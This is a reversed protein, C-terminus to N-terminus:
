LEPQIISIFIAYAVNLFPIVGFTGIMAITEADLAGFSGGIVNVIALTVIFLLPAAILVGTYIDSYTALVETYKQRDLKYTNLSDEAKGKLYEKLNGGTEVTAVIGTLLEKFDRSPTTVSVSRLATTLSYGFLNVYNVVKRIESELGKFEGASLVSNFMSIPQAGSGAVAAMHIIAFPLDNKIAKNRNGIVVAPYFYLFLSMLVGALFAFSIGRIISIVVSAKMVLSFVTVGFLISLFTLIGSFIVISMYTKSLVKIDSSKLITHEYDYFKPFKKSLYLILGECFYNATKGYKTTEYVTYGIDHASVAEEKGKLAEKLEYDELNLERLYQKKTKKSIKSYSGSSSLEAEGNKSKKDVLSEAIQKNLDEIQNLLEYIKKGYYKEWYKEDRGELLKKRKKDDKIDEFFKDRKTKWHELDELFGTAKKINKETHSM